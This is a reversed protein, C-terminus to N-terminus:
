APKETKSLAQRKTEIIALLADYPEIFKQVGERLLQETVQTFSIGLQELDRMVQRAEEVGQELTNQVVGHDAFAAITEDPITNVTQPGILPEIYMVDDYSPNKTSTSAWLMRQPRAGKDLLSKARDNSWLEKFRQYALKANAVAAKGLLDQPNPGQGSQIGTQIRESLIQDVLVDIRSLFFSAVSALNQIPWNKAARRELARIYAWAV